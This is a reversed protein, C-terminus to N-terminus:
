GPPAQSETLSHLHSWGRPPPTRLRQTLPHYAPLTPLGAAARATERRIIQPPAIGALWFPDLKPVTRWVPM